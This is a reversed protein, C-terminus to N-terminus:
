FPGQQQANFPVVPKREKPPEPPPIEGLEEARRDIEKMLMKARDDFTNFVGEFRYPKKGAPM